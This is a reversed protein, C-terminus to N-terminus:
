SDIHENGTERKRITLPIEVTLNTGAGPHSDVTLAGGLIRVREAIGSLGYGLANPQSASISTAEFGRGNDRISLSIINARNKIVVAAETAASHKIINNIAEQVIRYVHIESDEDFVNDVDEVRNAFLIRNDSSVRSLTARIAQTLGLRNLQYPRLGHTIQRVEELAQSTAGSIEELRQRVSNEESSRQMALLAQNRIALLVQSLGDHLNAAIRRREDELRELVHRSFALQAAQQRELRRRLLYVWLLTGLIAALLTGVLSAARKWTWWPPGRLVTVDGPTRLLINLSALYQPQVPQEGSTRSSPTENECVGIVKLRSGSAIEPLNGKSNPLTAAFVRQQEQLELVQSTGNTKRALLVADALVLAGNQKSSLAESLDLNKPKIQLPGKRPRLSADTLTRVAGNAAPFAAVDVTDGVEVTPHTAAQVRIGGSADQLFFSQDDVYTVEGSVHVRHTWPEMTESMVEAVSYVDTGFPNEPAPEQVDIFNRSPVLLVPSDLANLLLVGRASLKADVCRKLDTAATRGIWFYVLGDRGTVSLTGNSNVSHVVGELETWKGRRNAPVPTGLREAIPAPLAHWGLETIVLPSITPIYKGPQLAGGLEVWEGVELKNQYPHTEGGSVLMASENEQVILYDDNLVRDNFTVVGRTSYFGQMTSNAAPISTGNTNKATMAEVNTPSTDVIHIDDQRSVWIVGPVLNDNKDYAGECVGEIRVRANRLNQLLANELSPARVQVQMQEGGLELWVANQTTGIFRVIGETTVWRYNNEASWPQGLVLASPKPLRESKIVHVAVNEVSLASQFPRAGGVDTLDGSLYNTWFERLIGNTPSHKMDAGFPVLYRGEIISQELGPGQWAVALHDGVTTQEHLAEVYYTKGAELRISQSHQSPFHSWEHPAVWNFRPIFAIRRANSPKYDTSLWLESSNDSAIWFSYEGTTPPQLYGRMRALYYDGCGSPAEFSNRLQSGSRNFPFDPFRVFSPVCNTGDLSVQQGFRLESKSSRFNLSVAGTEDQLVILNRNTDVLTILGELHFDCGDLYESPSLTRFQAANTVFYNRAGTAPETTADAVCVQAGFGFVCIGPLLILSRLYKRMARVRETM